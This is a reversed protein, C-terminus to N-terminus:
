FPDTGLFDGIVKGADEGEGGKYLIDRGFVSCEIVEFRGYHEIMAPSNINVKLYRVEDIGFRRYELSLSDDFHLKVKREIIEGIIKQYRIGYRLDLIDDIEYNKFDIPSGNKEREKSEKELKEILEIFKM